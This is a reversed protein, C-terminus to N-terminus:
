EKIKWFEICRTSSSFNVGIEFLRRSDTQYKRAYKKEEIQKLAEEASGDYKLEIIYVYDETKIEIDIRGDSTHSEAKADLGILNMMLFFANHFNNEDEIKLMYDVGALYTQMEQMAANPDGMLFGVVMRDIIDNTVSEKYKLYYRVLVRYFGEKVERNPIGLRYRRLRPIYEKITVYGTQYLLAKANPDLLDMGTLEDQTSYSDLTKELDANIKKLLEAAVSPLGTHIWYNGIERKSLCNLLSWPNYIDSGERAFLYGDYNEKLIRCAEEFCIGERLAFSKVGEGIQERLEKETIGCIDAYGSDFTIDNLNNLDSFVSLKSFRSVGTLFVLRIHEASSKFSSYLSALRTRYHDLKKRDNINGVLPKDYEDVLIVVEKGTKEHAIRIINTFRQSHSSAIDTIGYREEWIKFLNDLVDELMGEDAYRDTNLDIHLVPYSQWDWDTSDIYLGEFLDRRGEFFYQLTSLFMSKGFRRPRALFFYRIGSRVIKDVFYTKDIYLNGAERLLKFNQQGIPYKLTEAM